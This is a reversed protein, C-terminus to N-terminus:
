KCVKVKGIQPLFKLIESCLIHIIKNFWALNDSQGKNYNSFKSFQGKNYTSLKLICKWLEATSKVDLISIVPTVDCLNDM